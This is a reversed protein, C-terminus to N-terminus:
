LRKLLSAFRLLGEPWPGHGSDSNIHGSFGADVLEAGLATGLAESEEFSAFPDNRSAILLTPFLLPAAPASFAPDVAEMKALSVSSPPAVFFGGSVKKGLHPAAHAAALVGLSHAILIVPREAEEVSDVIRCRWEELKPRDWDSQMVRRATSFKAEWRSQWHDPGSGGLGAIFLIDAEAIRM